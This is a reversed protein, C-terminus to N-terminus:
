AVNRGSKLKAAINSMRSFITKMSNGVVSASNQTVEATAAIMGLLQNMEVGTSRAMNATRSMAEALDASSTAAKLDISVLQDIVGIADKAELKYGKLASTLYQTAEASDILALKSLITSDQVLTTTDSQSYGQRLWDVAGEAVDITSAGLTQGIENYTDMLRETEERTGMTVIRINTLAEDYDKAYQICEQIGERVQGWMKYASGWLLSQELINKLMQGYNVANTTNKNQKNKETSIDQEAKLKQRLFDLEERQKPTLLNNIGAIEQLKLLQQNLLNLKQQYANKVGGETGIMSKETQAIEKMLSSIQNYVTRSQQTRQADINKVEAVQRNLVAMRSLNSIQERQEATTLRNFEDSQMLVTLENNLYNLKQQYANSIEANVGVSQREVEAIQNILSAAERYLENSRGITSINDRGTALVRKFEGDVFELNRVWTQMGDSVTVTGSAIQSQGDRVVTIRQVIGDLTNSIQNYLETGQQLVEPTLTAKAIHNNVNGIGSNSGSGVNGNVGSVNVNLSLNGMSQRLTNIQSQVQQIANLAQSNDIHLELETRLDQIQQRLKSSDGLIADVKFEIDAM